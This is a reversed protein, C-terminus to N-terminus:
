EGIEEGDDKGSHRRRPWGHLLWGIAIGIALVIFLLFARRIQFSWFLFEVNLVESNQIVFIVILALGTLSLILKIERM